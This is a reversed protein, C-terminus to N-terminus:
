NVSIIIIDIKNPKNPTVNDGINIKDSEITKNTRVDVDACIKSTVLVEM